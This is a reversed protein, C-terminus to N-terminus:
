KMIFSAKSEPLILLSVLIMSGVEPFVPIPKAKTPAAKPRDTVRTKGSVM